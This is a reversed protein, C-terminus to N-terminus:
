IVFLRVNFQAPPISYGVTYVVVRFFFLQFLIVAEVTNGM